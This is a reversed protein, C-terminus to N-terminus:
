WDVKGDKNLPFGKDITEVLVEDKLEAIINGSSDRKTELTTSVAGTVRFAFRWSSQDTKVMRIVEMFSGARTVLQAAFTKSTASPDIGIQGVAHGTHPQMSAIEIASIDRSRLEEPSLHKPLNLFNEPDWLRGSVDYAPFDSDNYMIFTISKLVKDTPDVGLSYTIYPPKKPDGRQLNLLQTQVSTDAVDKLHGLFVTAAFGLAFGVIVVWKWAGQPPCIAVIIGALAILATVIQQWLSYSEV